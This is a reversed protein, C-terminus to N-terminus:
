HVGDGPFRVHHIWGEPAPVRGMQIGTLTDYLKQCVEGPNEMGSPFEIMKGHDHIAGVPTIVAATGCIGCEAFNEVESLYVEREEVKLGLYEAAVVVLSRRTISSLITPSNPTIFRGDSTIFFINAGGTEEVKTHTAADLFINEAFGKSKAQYGAYLSMCYNLGGKVHGTGRPAARDFDSVTLTIPKVGGKFYPGVPTAFVRFLFEDAPRVGLVPNTGIMFPRLYLTAGSGYPPVYALNDLIVLDVAAIFKEVSYEPMVLRHCTDVMRQANLEPRFTVVHGEETKYAKLGEFCTQAYQLVAASENLTIEANPVLGREIWEGNQFVAEYRTPLPMYGFPLQSWEINEISL